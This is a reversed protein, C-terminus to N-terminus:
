RSNGQMQRIAAEAEQVPLQCVKNQCVYIFTEGEQLKGKLLELSGEEAGGLFLANPLYEQQLAQRKEAYDAGVVAVEYLPFALESYLSMWNSFYSPATTQAMEGAMRQLMQRARNTYTTDYLYTGLHLLSRGMTSNGSPIVNDETKATRAILEPDLDSTYYLMPSDEASFHELAYTALQTAQDLWAEEFTIAYLDLFAQITFAYDDLFGNIKAQGDKYTRLIRGDSQILKDRLLQGAKVAADRYTPDQLAQYADAYGSIMMANWSTVQKDDLGPRVREARNAFLKAKSGEISRDLESQTLQYEDLIKQVNKDQILINRSEWNGGPRFSYYDMFVRADSGTGLVSEVEEATWTYFLGEEGESDADLSSYFGGEPSTMERAVFLLTEELVTKYAENGTLQYAESYLSVLQANDYLMKEFHPVRWQADTAYRAFGGGLPDYLGGTSMADLTTTVLALLSDQGTLAHQRLLFRFVSPLPFKPAGQMGGLVHDGQALIASVSVQLTEKSLNAEAELPKPRSVSQIGEALLQGYEELKGRDNQYLDSFYKLVELWEEKPFYTGAWVPQGNPLAFANLPWGCGGEAALQCATMYINDVDPREERDVKIAVFNENMIRAVTSDEFSEHEMVHCWHCAAYGVSIVLLKDEEKAKKLAEEGWPYWNVPNHAHQLLYPSSENVLANTHEHTATPSGCSYLLAILGIFSYGLLSQAIIPFTTNRNM